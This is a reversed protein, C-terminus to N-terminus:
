IRKFKFCNDEYAEWNNKNESKLLQIIEERKKIIAIEFEYM